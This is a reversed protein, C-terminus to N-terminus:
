PTYWTLLGFKLNERKQKSLKWDVGPEPREKLLHYKIELLTLFLQKAHYTGVYGPVETCTPNSPCSCGAKVPHKRYDKWTTFEPHTPMAYPNHIEVCAKKDGYFRSLSRCTTRRNRWERLNNGNPSTDNVPRTDYMEHVLYFETIDPCCDIFWALSQPLYAHEAYNNFPNLSGPVVLMAVKSVGRLANQTSRLYCPQDPRFNRPHWFMTAEGPFREDDRDLFRFGQVMDLCVLDDDGAISLRNKVDTYPDSYDLTLRRGVSHRFAQYSVPCLLALERLRQVPSDDEQPHLAYLSMSKPEDSSDRSRLLRFLYLSPKQLAEGFIMVQIETPVSELPFHQLTQQLSGDGEGQQSQNTNEDGSSM